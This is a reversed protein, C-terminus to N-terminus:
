TCWIYGHNISQSKKNREWDSNNMSNKFIRFEYRRCRENVNLLVKNSSNENESKPLM